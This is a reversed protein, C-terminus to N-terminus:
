GKIYEEIKVRIKSVAKANIQSVRAITVELIESIESLNMNEFYYLTVVLRERDSLSEIAQKLVNRLESRLIKKEPSSDTNFPNDIVDGMQNINQILEEFSFLSANEIEGCYQNLKKVSIDLKRAIEEQTPERMLENSLLSRVNNIEKAMSRVRRPIWDQKRVFDIISGRVRMFAYSEFKIGKSPDFKEVCDILTVMGHNVMDEIQAFGTIIGRLQMASSKAIYGFGIVIENRKSIDGTQKYESYLSLFQEETMKSNHNVTQETM